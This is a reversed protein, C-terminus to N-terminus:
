LYISVSRLLRFGTNGFYGIMNFKYISIYVTPKTGDCSLLLLELIKFLLYRHEM